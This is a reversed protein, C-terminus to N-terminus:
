VTEGHLNTLVESKLRGVYKRVMRALAAAHVAMRVPQLNGHAAGELRFTRSAPHDLIEVHDLLHDATFDDVQQIMLGEIIQDVIGGGFVDDLPHPLAKGRTELSQVLEDKPLGGITAGDQACAIKM